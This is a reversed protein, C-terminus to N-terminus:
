EIIDDARALLEPRISVGLARATKLNVVLEFRGAQEIPIGGPKEGRLVRDAFTALRVYTARQNAGYSMLGGADCMERWMSPLRRARAFDGIRARHVMTVGDPFTLMGDADSERLASLAQDFESPGKFGIYVLPLGISRAANQTAKLESVEGPHNINSLIALKHL